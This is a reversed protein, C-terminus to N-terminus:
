LRAPPDKEEIALTEDEVRGGAAWQTVAGSLSGPM